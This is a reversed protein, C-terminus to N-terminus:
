WYPVSKVFPYKKGYASYISGRRALVQRSFTYNPADVEPTVHARILKQSSFVAMASLGVVPLWFRLREGRM